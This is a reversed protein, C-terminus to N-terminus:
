QSDDEDTTDADEGAEEAPNDGQNEAAARNRAIRTRLNQVQEELAKREPFAFALAREWEELAEQLRDLTVLVEGLHQHVEPSYPAMEVAKRLATEAEAAKGQKFLVWGWSDMTSANTPDQDLASKILRAAENLDGGHELLSFGLNNQLVPHRPNLKQGERLVQIAQEPRDLNELANAQLLLLEVDRVPAAKRAELVTDLCREWSRFQAYLGAMAELDLQVLTRHFDGKFFRGEELAKPPLEAARQFLEQQPFRAMGEKIAAQAPKWAQTQVLAQARLAAVAPQSGADPWSACLDLVERPRGSFLLCTAYLEKVGAALAQDEESSGLTPLLAKWRAEAEAFSGLKMLCLGVNFSTRASKRMSEARALTQLAAEFRGTRLQIIAINEWIAPEMPIYQGLLQFSEEAHGLFGLDVQDRALDELFKLYRQDPYTRDCLALVAERRAEYNKRQVALEMAREWAFDSLIRGRYTASPHLRGVSLWAQLAGEEDRLSDQLEALRTWLEPDSPLLRVARRLAAVATARLSERSQSQVYYLLGLHAWAEGSRPDLETAKVAPDVAAAQNGSELLSESLRLYAQSSNPVLAIVKRYLAAAGQPNNGGGDRQMSRAQIMLARPDADATGPPTGAGLVLTAALVPLLKL